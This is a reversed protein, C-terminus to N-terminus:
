RPRRSAARASRVLYVVLQGSTVAVGVVIAFKAPYIPVRLVSLTREAM